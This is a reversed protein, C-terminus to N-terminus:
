ISRGRAKRLAYLDTKAEKLFTNLAAELSSFGLSSGTESSISDLRSKLEPIRSSLISVADVAVQFAAEVAEQKARPLTKVKPADVTEYLRPDVKKRMECEMEAVISRLESLIKNIKHIDM